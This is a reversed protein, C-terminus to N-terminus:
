TYLDTQTEGHEFRGKGSEISFAIILSLLAVLLKKLQTGLDEVKESAETQSTHVTGWGVKSQLPTHQSSAIYLSFLFFTFM